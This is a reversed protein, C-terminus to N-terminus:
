TANPNLHSTMVNDTRLPQMKVSVGSSKRLMEEEEKLLGLDRLFTAEAELFQQYEMKM